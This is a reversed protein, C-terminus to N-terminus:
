EEESEQEQEEKWEQYFEHNSDVLWEALSFTSIPSSDVSWCSEINGYGNIYVNDGWNELKGFFVMRAMELPAYEFTEALDEVGDFIQEGNGTASIYENWLPKLTEYSQDNIFDYFTQNAM